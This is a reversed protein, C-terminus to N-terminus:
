EGSRFVQRGQLVLSFSLLLSLNRKKVTSVFSRIRAYRLIGNWSRFCGSVKHKTKCPRLDREAQNNTFPARYDRIFLLYCDKFDTLRNLMRRLEDYGLEKERIASLAVRGKNVLHDFDREFRSLVLADCHAKGLAVDANKHDNMLSMFRRMEEAWPIKQLEFLGRLERLLHAGCTAHATGYHYFKAEHDQSIIGIYRPLIGDRKVGEDDKQPNVTYLTSTNSSHTRIYASFSTGESRHFVPEDGSYDPKETCREPTEDVHLVPENLLSTKIEELEGSLKDSLESLFSEITADSLKVAGNTIENFFDSLREEAIIGAVSLLVAMAKIKEGYTVEAGFPAKGKPYRHETVVLTIDLDITYRRVYSSAGCTHDVLDRRAAGKEVMEDLNKPLELRKGPHGPQGGSKRGSRERSNQVRKYGDQSPPKSSNGSNKNIQAKLREIEVMLKAISAEMAAEVALIQCGLEKNKARLSKNESVLRENEQTLEEVQKIIGRGYNTGM